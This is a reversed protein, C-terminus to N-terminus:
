LVFKRIESWVQNHDVPFLMPTTTTENNVTEKMVKVKHTQLLRGTFYM